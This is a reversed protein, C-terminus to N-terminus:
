KLFVYCWLSGMVVLFFTGKVIKMFWGDPENSRYSTRRQREKADARQRADERQQRDHEVLREAARRIEEQQDYYTKDAYLPASFLVM